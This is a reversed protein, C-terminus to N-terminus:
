LKSETLRQGLEISFERRSLGRWPYAHVWLKFTGLKVTRPSVADPFIGLTQSAVHLFNKRRRIKPKTTDEPEVSM